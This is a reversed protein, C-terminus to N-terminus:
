KGKVETELASRIPIMMAELDRLSQWSVLNTRLEYTLNLNALQTAAARTAPLDCSDLKGLFNRIAKVINDVPARPPNSMYWLHEGLNVFNAPTPTKSHIDEDEDRPEPSATPHHIEPSEGSTDPAVEGAIAAQFDGESHWDTGDLNVHCGATRLRQALEQRMAVSGDMRVVHRGRTDSMPRLRGLEVIVTQDEHLGLAMGAEFLVNQRPQAMFEKESEGDSPQWFEKKLRAEDDPTMLVVAAKAMTFGQVLIEGVYPSSKGTATVIHSWELPNLNVSRLFAFLAKRAKANRGHVVFVNRPDASSETVTTGKNEHM